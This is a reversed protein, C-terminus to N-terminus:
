LTEGESGQTLVRYLDEATPIKMTTTYLVGNILFGPTAKIKLADGASIAILIEKTVEPAMMDARLKEPDIGAAQALIDIEEDKVPEDRRILLNHMEIFKGNLGAALALRAEHLSIDGMVPFHRFVIKVDPHRRHLEEVSANVVRCAYCRYDMFEVIVQEADAPGLYQGLAADAVHKMAAHMGWYRVGVLLAMAIVAAYLIRRAWKM